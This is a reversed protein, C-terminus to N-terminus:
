KFCVQCFSTRFQQLLDRLLDPVESHLSILKVTGGDIQQINADVPHHECRTALNIHFSELNSTLQQLSTQLSTMLRKHKTQLLKDNCVMKLKNYEANKCDNFICVQELQENGM